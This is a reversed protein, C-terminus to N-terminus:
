LYSSESINLYSVLIIGVDEYDFELISVPLLPPISVIDTLEKLEPLIKTFYRLALMEEKTFRIVKIQYYFNFHYRLKFRQQGKKKSVEQAAKNKPSDVGLDSKSLVHQPALRRKTATQVTNWSEDPNNNDINNENIAVTEDQQLEIKRSKSKTESKSLKSTSFADFVNESITTM